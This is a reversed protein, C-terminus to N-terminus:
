WDIDVLGLGVCAPPAGDFLEELSESSPPFGEAQLGSILATCALEIDDDFTREDMAHQMMVLAAVFRDLSPGEKEPRPYAEHAEWLMDLTPDGKFRKTAEHSLLRIAATVKRPLGEIVRSEHDLTYPETYALEYEMEKRGPYSFRGGDFLVSAVTAADVEYTELHHRLTSSLRVTIM